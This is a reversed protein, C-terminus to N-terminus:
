SRMEDRIRRIAEEPTIGAPPNLIPRGIVLYDAGMAVAEAPTTVRKQDDTQAWRPRIGPVVLAVRNGFKKRLLRIEKPSCVLGTIGNDVAISAFRLVAPQSTHGFRSVCQSDDLDTLVTVALAQSESQAKAAAQLAEDSALAHLTFLKSGNAAINHAAAAVTNAIDHLKMDWFVDRRYEEIALHRIFTATTVGEHNEVTMAELGVKVMDVLPLLPGVTKKARNIDTIDCALVLQCAM